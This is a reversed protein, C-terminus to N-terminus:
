NLPNNEDPYFIINEVKLKTVIREKHWEEFTLIGSITMYCASMIDYAKKIRKIEKFWDTKLIEPKNPFLCYSDRVEKTPHQISWVPLNGFADFVLWYDKLILRNGPTM